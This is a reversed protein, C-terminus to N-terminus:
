RMKLFNDGNSRVMLKQNILDSPETELVDSGVVKGGEVEFMIPEFYDESKIAVNGSNWVKLVLLRADKVPNGDLRIEVRNEVAKNVSAIPADSVVQYTIEKRHRQQRYSKFAIIIAAIGILIAVVVGIFQWVTDRLPDYPPTNVLINLLM